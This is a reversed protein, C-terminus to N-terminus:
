NQEAVVKRAINTCFFALTGVGFLALIAFHPNFAEGKLIWEQQIFYAFPMMFALVLIMGLLISWPPLENEFETMLILLSPVLLFLDYYYCYLSSVMGIPMIAVLGYDLWKKSSSLKRGVLFIVLSVLGLVGISIYHGAVRNHPFLRFLQGRLTCSIDSVLFSNDEITSKM